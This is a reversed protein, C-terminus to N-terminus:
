WQRTEIWAGALLVEPKRNQVAERCVYAMM